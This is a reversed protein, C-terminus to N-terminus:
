VALQVIVAHADLYMIDAPIDVNQLAQYKPNSRYWSLCGIDLVWYYKGRAIGIGLVLVSVQTSCLLSWSFDWFEIITDLCLIAAILTCTLLLVLYDNVPM